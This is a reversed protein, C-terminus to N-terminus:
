TWQAVTDLLSEFGRGIFQLDLARGVTGDYWRTTDCELVVIDACFFNQQKQDSVIVLQRRGHM